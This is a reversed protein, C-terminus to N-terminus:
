ISCMVASICPTLDVAALAAGLLVPSLMTSMFLKCPRLASAGEPRFVCPPLTIAPATTIVGASTYSRSTAGGPRMVQALLPARVSPRCTSTSAPSMGWSSAPALGSVPTATGGVSSVTPPPPEWCSGGRISSYGCSGLIHCCADPLGDHRCYQLGALKGCSVAHAVGETKVRRGCARTWPGGFNFSSRELDPHTSQISARTASICHFCWWSPRSACAVWSSISFTRRCVQPACKLLKHTSAFYIFTACTVGVEPCRVGAEGHSLPSMNMRPGAM